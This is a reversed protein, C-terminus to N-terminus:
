GTWPHNLKYHSKPLSVRAPPGFEWSKMIAEPSAACVVVQLAGEDVEDTTTEDVDVFEGDAETVCVAGPATVWGGACDDDGTRLPPAIPPITTPANAAETM